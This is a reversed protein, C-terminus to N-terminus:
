DELDRTSYGLVSDRKFKGTVNNDFDLFVIYDSHELVHNAKVLAIQYCEDSALLHVTWTLNKKNAM